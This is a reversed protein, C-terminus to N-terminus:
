KKLKIKMEFNKVSSPSPISYMENIWKWAMDIATATDSVSYRDEIDSVEIGDEIIEVSEQGTDEIVIWSIEINAYM